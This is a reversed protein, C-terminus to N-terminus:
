QGFEEHISDRLNGTVVHVINEAATEVLGVGARFRRALAGADGTEFVEVAGAAVADVLEPLAREEAPALYPRAEMRATGSEVFGAYEEASGVTAVLAPDAVAAQVLAVRDILDDLGVITLAVSM